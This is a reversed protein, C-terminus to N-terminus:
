ISYKKVVEEIFKPDAGMLRLGEGMANTDYEDRTPDDNICIALKNGIMGAAVMVPTGGMSTPYQEPSRFCVLPLLDPIRLNEIKIQKKEQTPVDDKENDGDKNEESSSQQQQQQQQHEENKADDDKVRVVWRGSQPIFKEALAKKGNLLQGAESMLGHIVVDTGAPVLMNPQPFAFPYFSNELPASSM